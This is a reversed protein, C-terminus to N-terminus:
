TRDTSNRLLWHMWAQRLANKLGVQYANELAYELHDVALRADEKGWGRRSTLDNLVVARVARLVEQVREHTIAKDVSASNKASRELEATLEDHYVEWPQKM